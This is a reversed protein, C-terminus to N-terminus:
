RRLNFILFAIFVIVHNVIYLSALVNVSLCKIRPKMWYCTVIMWTRLVEQVPLRGTALKRWHTLFSQLEEEM